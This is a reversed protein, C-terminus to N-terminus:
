VGDPCHPWGEFTGENFASLTATLDGIEQQTLTTTINLGTGGTGARADAIADDVADPGDDANADGGLNNLAALLQQYLNLLSNNGGFTVSGPKGPTAAFIAQAEAKTRGDVGIVTPAGNKNQYWGKTYTCGEPDPPPTFDNTWTVVTVTESNGRVTATQAAVDVTFDLATTLLLADAQGQNFVYQEVTISATSWNAQGTETILLRDISTLDEQADYIEICSTAGPAINTFDPTADVPPTATGPDEATSSVTFAFANTSPDGASVRKCLYVDGYATGAPIASGVVQYNQDLSPTGLGLDNVTPSTTDACAVAFAAIAIALVGLKKSM